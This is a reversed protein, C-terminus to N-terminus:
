SRRSERDRASQQDIDSQGEDARRRYIGLALVDAAERPVMARAVPHGIVGPRENRGVRPTM